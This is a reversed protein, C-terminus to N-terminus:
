RLGDNELEDLPLVSLKQRIGIKYGVGTSIAIVITYTLMRMGMWYVPYGLLYGIFVAIGYGVVILISINKFIRKTEKRVNRKYEKIWDKRNDEKENSRKVIHENM